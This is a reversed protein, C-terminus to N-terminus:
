VDPATSATGARRADFFHDLKERLLSMTEEATDRAQDALGMGELIGMAEEFGQETAGRIVSEYEDLAEAESLEPHQERWIAYMGSAFGFIRESTAEPSLDLGAAHRLDVGHEQFLADLAQGHETALSAELTEANLRLLPPEDQKPEATPLLREVLARDAVPVAIGPRGYLETALPDPEGGLQVVDGASPANAAPPPPSPLARAPQPLLRATLSQDIHM